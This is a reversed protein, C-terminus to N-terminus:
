NGFESEVGGVYFLHGPGAVEEPGETSGAETAGDDDGVDGVYTGLRVESGIKKGLESGRESREAIGQGGIGRHKGV